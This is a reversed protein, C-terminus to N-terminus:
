KLFCRVETVSGKFWPGWDGTMSSRYRFQGMGPLEVKKGGGDFSTPTNLHFQVTPLLVPGPGGGHPLSLAPNGAGHIVFYPSGLIFLQLYSGHIISENMVPQELAQTIQGHGNVVQSGTSFILSLHLTPGGALGSSISYCGPFAGFKQEETPADAASATGAQFLMLALTLFGFNKKM